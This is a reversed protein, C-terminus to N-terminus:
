IRPEFDPIEYPRDGEEVVRIRELRFVREGGRLYCWAQLHPLKLLWIGVERRIVGREPHQTDQYEILVTQREDYARSLTRRQRLRLPSDPALAGILDDLEGVTIAGTPDVIGVIRRYLELTLRADALARHREAIGVGLREAVAYLTNRNFAFLRRAMWLTDLTTPPALTRGAAAFEAHLFALDTDVNHAVLVAGDLAAAIEDILDVFSPATALLEDDLGTLRRAEETMPVPPRVLSHVVREVLDGRARVIAVECVRDREIDLGTLELDIVAMLVAAAPQDRLEM